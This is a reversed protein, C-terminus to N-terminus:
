GFPVSIRGLEGLISDSRGYFDRKFSDDLNEIAKAADETTPRLDENSM